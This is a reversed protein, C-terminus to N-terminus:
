EGRSRSASGQRSGLLGGPPLAPAEFAARIAAAARGYLAQVHAPPLALLDAIEPFSLSHEFYEALVTGQPTPLGAIVAALQARQGPSLHAVPIMHEPCVGFVLGAETFRAELEAGRLDLERAPAANAPSQEAVRLTVYDCPSDRVAACLPEVRRSWAARFWETARASRRLDHLIRRTAMEEFSRAANAPASYLRHHQAAESLTILGRGMLVTEDLYPAIVAGIRGIAVKVLHAFRRVLERRAALGDPVEWAAARLSLCHDHDALDRYTDIAELTM